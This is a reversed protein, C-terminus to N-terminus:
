FCQTRDQAAEIFNVENFGFKKAAIEINDYYELQIKSYFNTRIEQKGM